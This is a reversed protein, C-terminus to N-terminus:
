ECESEQVQRGGMGKEKRRVFVTDGDKIGLDELRLHLDLSDMQDDDNERSSGCDCKHISYDKWEEVQLGDSNRLVTRLLKSAKYQLNVKEIKTPGDSIADHRKSYCVKISDSM